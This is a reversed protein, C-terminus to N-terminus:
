RAISPSGHTKSVPGQTGAAICSRAKLKVGDRRDATLLSWIGAGPTSVEAACLGRNNGSEPVGFVRPSWAQRRCFWMTPDNGDEVPREPQAPPGADWLRPAEASKGEAAAPPATSGRM